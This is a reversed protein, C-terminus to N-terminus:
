CDEAQEFDGMLKISKYATERTIDVGQVTFPVVRVYSAEDKDRAEKDVYVAVRVLTSQYLTNSHCGIIKWYEGQKTGFSIFKKLAM